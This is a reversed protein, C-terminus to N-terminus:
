LRLQQVLEVCKDEWEKLERLLGPDNRQDNEILSFIIKEGTAASTVGTLSSVVEKSWLSGTKGRVKAAQFESGAGKFRHKLTGTQGGAPLSGLLDAFAAFDRYATQMTETFCRASIRTEWALGSGNAMVSEHCANHRRLFE